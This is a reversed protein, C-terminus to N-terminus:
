ASSREGGIIVLPSVEFKLRGILEHQNNRAVDLYRETTAVSSHGLWRQVTRIDVGAQLASTAFTQRLVQMGALGAKASERSFNTGQWRLGRLTPFCWRARRGLGALITRLRPHLPIAREEHDKLPHEVKNRVTIWDAQVDAWELALAEARRLGAYLAVAAAGYFSAGATRARRLQEASGEPTLTRPLNKPVRPFPVGCVPNRPVRGWRILAFYLARLNRLERHITAPGVSGGREGMYAEIDWATVEQPPRDGHKVLFPRLSGRAAAVTNPLTRGALVKLYLAACEALTRAETEM